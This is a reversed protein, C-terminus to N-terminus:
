DCWSMLSTPTVHGDRGDGDSSDNGRKRKKLDDAQLKTKCNISTVFALPKSQHHRLPSTDGSKIHHDTTL